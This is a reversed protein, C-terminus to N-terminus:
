ARQFRATDMVPLGRVPSWTCSSAAMPMRAAAAMPRPAVTTSFFRFSFYFGMSFGRMRNKRFRPNQFQCNVISLQCNQSISPPETQASLSSFRANKILSPQFISRETFGYPRCDAARQTDFVVQATSRYRGGAYGYPRCGAARWTELIVQASLVSDGELIDNRGYRLPTSSDVWTASIVSALYFRSSPFIGGSWKM